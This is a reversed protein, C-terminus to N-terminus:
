NNTFIANKKKTYIEFQIINRQQFKKNEYQQKNKKNTVVFGSGNPRTWLADFPELPGYSHLAEHYFECEKFQCISTVLIYIHSKPVGIVPTKFQMCSQM